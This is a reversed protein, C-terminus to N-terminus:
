CLPVQVWFQCGKGIKSEVGINGGMLKILRKSSILGIGIGNIGNYDRMREFPKFLRQLEQETLGEGTDTIKIRLQNKDMIECSLVVSGKDTNYKIANSLLNRMVQKFHVKDVRIIYNSMRNINNTIQVDYKSALLDIFSSCETLMNNLNCDELSCQLRGTEIDSLHLVGSILELLHNGGNIIEEVTEKQQNTLNGDLQLLQSFGLIANLPTNFEHSMHSLFKSKAKSAYEAAEKAEILATETNKQLTIDQVLSAVGIAEGTDNVLPTNYWECLITNGDKTINENTSRLGNKLALLNKWIQDVHKTADESLILDYAHRGLAEDKTFGFITEAAPNWETVCFHKDWEIVGLPTRQVHLSMRQQSETMTEYFKKRETIDRALVSLLNDNGLQILGLSVEVPFTSDDKRRHTSELHIVEGHKLSPWLRKLKEPESGMEIDSITMNLLEDRTYGLSSCALLNVDLFNGQSDHLFFADTLTNFLTKYFINSKQKEYEQLNIKNM